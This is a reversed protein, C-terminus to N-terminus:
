LGCRYNAGGYSSALLTTLGTLLYETGHVVLTISNNGFLRAYSICSIAGSSLCAADSDWKTSSPPSIVAATSASDGFVAALARPRGSALTHSNTCCCKLEPPRRASNRHRDVAQHPRASDLTLYSISLLSLSEFWYLTGVRKTLRYFLDGHMGTLTGAGPSAASTCLPSAQPHQRSHLMPPRRTCVGQKVILEGRILIDFIARSGM